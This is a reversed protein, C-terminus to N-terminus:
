SFRFGIMSIDDTQEAEGKWEFLTDLIIKKQEAMPFHAIRLLLEKLRSIKFKEMNNKDFQDVVGDSYLYLCTGELNELKINEFYKEQSFVNHGISSKSGKLITLEEGRVLIMNQRAGSFVLSNDEVYYACLAIDLGDKIEENMGHQRLSGRVREDLFHLAEAPSNVTPENLSQNLVSTALVSMLAGPVGHGTCDALAFVHVLKDGSYTRNIWVFDGSVVDKPIVFAFSDKFIEEFRTEYNTLAKQIRRAYRISSIIEENKERLEKTRERVTQELKINIEDKLRNHEELQRVLAQQAKEKEEQFERYKNAMAISLFIVELGSGMKMSYQVFLTNELINVNGLLFVFTGATICLLAIVFNKDINIKQKSIAYMMYFLVVIASFTLVNIFPYLWAYIEGEAFSLMFILACVYIYATIIKYFLPWRHLRLFSRVYLSLFMVGLSASFMVAHSSLWPFDPWLFQTALGDLSFQLLFLFFVYLVFFLFSRERLARYFFSFILIVFALVGYYLGNYLNEKESLMLFSRENWLNVPINLVEGDSKLYFLCGLKEEPRFTITFIQKRHPFSKAGFVVGDGAQYIQVTDSRFLYLTVIDTVPRAVELLFHSTEGSTNQMEVYALYARNTFGMNRYNHGLPEMRDLYAGKNLIFSHLSFTDEELMMYCVKEGLPLMDSLPDIKQLYCNQSFISNAIFFFCVMVGSCFRMRM